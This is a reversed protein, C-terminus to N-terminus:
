QVKVWEHKTFDYKKIVRAPNGVAICYDPVSKTVVSGAGIVCKKGIQVGPLICVREGIWSGEGILIPAGRLPQDMYFIENEPDIGHNESSVLVNSAFLVHDEITIDAGALITVNFGLYCHSGISIHPTIEMLDPYLQIRVNRLITTHHGIKVLEPHTLAQYPLEIESGSGFAMFRRKTRKSMRTKSVYVRYINKLIQTIKSM